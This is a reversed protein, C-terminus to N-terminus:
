IGPPAGWLANIPWALSMVFMPQPRRRPIHLAVFIAFAIGLSLAIWSVAEFVHSPAATMEQTRR